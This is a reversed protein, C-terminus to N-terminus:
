YFIQRLSNHKETYKSFFPYISPVQKSVQLCISQCAARSRCQKWTSYIPRVCCFRDVPNGVFRSKFWDGCSSLSALFYFIQKYCTLIHNKRILLYCLHQDSQASLFPQDADKNNAFGRLCTKEHQPGYSINKLQYTDM